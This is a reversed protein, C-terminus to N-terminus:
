GYYPDINNSTYAILGANSVRWDSIKNTAHKIDGKIQRRLADSINLGELCELFSKLYVQLAAPISGIAATITAQPGVVSSATAASYVVNAALGAAILHCREIERKVAEELTEPYTAEAYVRFRSKRTQTCPLKIEQKCTRGPNSWTPCPVWTWGTVCTAAKFEPYEFSFLTKEYRGKPAGQEQGDPCSYPIKIGGPGNKYCIKVPPRPEETYSYAEPNWRYATVQEVVEFFDYNDTNLSQNKTQLNQNPM